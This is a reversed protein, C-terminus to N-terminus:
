EEYLILYLLTSYIKGSFAQSYSLFNLACRAGGMGLLCFGSLFVGKGKKSFIALNM